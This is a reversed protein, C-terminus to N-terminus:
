DIVKHTKIIILRLWPHLAQYDEIKIRGADKTDIFGTNKFDYFLPPLSCDRAVEGVPKGSTRAREIIDLVQERGPKFGLIIELEEAPFNDDTKNEM